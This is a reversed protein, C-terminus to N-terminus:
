TCDVAAWARRRTAAGRISGSGPPHGLAAVAPQGGAVWQHGDASELVRGDVMEANTAFRGQPSSVAVPRGVYRRTHLAALRHLTHGEPM